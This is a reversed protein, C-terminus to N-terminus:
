FHKYLYFNNFILYAKPEKKDARVLNVSFFIVLIFKGSLRDKVVQSAFAAAAASRQLVPDLGIAWPSFVAGPSAPAPLPRHAPVRLVGGGGYIGAGLTLARGAGFVAAPQYMFQGGDVPSKQEFSKGLLSSISFPLTTPTRNPTTQTNEPTSCHSRSESGSDRDASLRSDTDMVNIEEQDNDSLEHDSM